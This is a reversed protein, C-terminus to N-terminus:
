WDGLYMPSFLGRRMMKQRRSSLRLGAVRKWYISVLLVILTVSDWLWLGSLM